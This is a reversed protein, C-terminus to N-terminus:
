MQRLGAEAWLMGALGTAKWRSWHKRAYTLLAHRTMLRLPAPVRRAHLPWHHTVELGPDYWVSWGADAARRCFDVDEYYLFLSEDLGGLKAFCDRRVLLCGGTVWDVERYAEVAQHRCKRRSRPRFLGLVTNMFSPFPGASAQGTGDANRLRFGVVGAHPGGEEMRDIAAIADDLFGDEVTVDPNMLLLWKGKGLRSGRNVAKAFGHNRNFGRITVGSLRKLRRVVPHFPSHNDVIVIEAFGSRVALSRRLQRALRATNRWQCFNVIVVSLEPSRSPASPRMFRTRKPEAAATPPQEPGGEPPVALAM